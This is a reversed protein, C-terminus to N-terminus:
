GEGDKVAALQGEAVIERGDSQEHVALACQLQPAVQVHRVLRCVHRRV